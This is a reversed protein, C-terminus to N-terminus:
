NVLIKTHHPAFHLIQSLGFGNVWAWMESAIPIPTFKHCRNYQVFREISFRAWRAWCGFWVGVPLAQRIPLDDDLGIRHWGGM